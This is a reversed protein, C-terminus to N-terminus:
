SRTDAGLKPPAHFPSLSSPSAGTKSDLWISFQRPLDKKRLNTTPTFPPTTQHPLLNTKLPKLLRSDADNLVTLACRFGFPREMAHSPLRLTYSNRSAYVADDAVTETLWLFTVAVVHPPAKATVPM